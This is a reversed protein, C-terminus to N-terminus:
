ALESLSPRSAAPKITSSDMLPTAGFADVIRMLRSGAM